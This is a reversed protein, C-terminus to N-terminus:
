IGRPGWHLEPLYCDYTCNQLQSILADALLPWCAEAEGVREEPEQHWGTEDRLGRRELGSSQPHQRRKQWQSSPFLAQPPYMLLLNAPHPNVDPRRVGIRPRQWQFSLDAGLSCSKELLM